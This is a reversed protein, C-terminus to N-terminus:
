VLRLKSSVTFDGYRGIIQLVLKMAANKEADIKKKLPDSIAEFAISNDKARLRGIVVFHPTKAKETYEPQPYFNTQIFYM